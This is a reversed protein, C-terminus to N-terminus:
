AGIAKAVVTLRRQAEEVRWLAQRAEKVKQDLAAAKQAATERIAPSASAAAKCRAERRKINAWFRNSRAQEARSEDIATQAEERTAHGGWRAEITGDAEGTLVHGITERCDALTGRSHVKPIIATYNLRGRHDIMFRATDTLSWENGYGDNKKWDPGEIQFRGDESQYRSAERETDPLKILKM